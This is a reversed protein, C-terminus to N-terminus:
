VFFEFVKPATVKGSLLRGTTTRHRWGRPGLMICRPTIRELRQIYNCVCVICIYLWQSIVKSFEPIHNHTPSLSLSLSFSLCFICIGDDGSFSKWTGAPWEDLEGGGRAVLHGADAKIRLLKKHVRQAIKSIKAV